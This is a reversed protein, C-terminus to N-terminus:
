ANMLLNKRQEKSNLVQRKRGVWGCDSCQVEAWASVPTYVTNGTEAVHESGCAGCRSKGDNYLQGLNPAKTDFGRIQLYVDELLVVDQKNYELMTSLSEEDGQMCSTWLSIGSHQMKRGVGLYHGIADLKNSPFKLQKAIKLTDVMKATKPPPYGNTLLRTKFLPFDFNLGNHAIVVDASDWAELVEACIRSDNRAVAEAPTLVCGQVEEDGLYKWSASILWGGEELIHEPSLNVKFRQFAVGISPANELDLLLIRPNNSESDSFYDQNFEASLYKNVTSKAVDLQSAIQRSSMGLLSLRQIEEIISQQIQPM